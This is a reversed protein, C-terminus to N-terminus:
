EEVSGDVPFRVMFCSGKGLTSQVTVEGHHLGVIQRVMALGLGLGSGSRAREVQYFRQWIKDLDEEKIGIGDDEM